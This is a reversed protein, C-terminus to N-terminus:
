IVSPMKELSLYTYVVKAAKKKYRYFGIALLSTGLLVMLSSIFGQINPLTVAVFYM